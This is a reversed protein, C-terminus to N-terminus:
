QGIGLLCPSEDRGRWDHRDDGKDGETQRDACIEVRRRGAQEESHRDAPETAEQGAATRAPNGRRAPPDPRGVAPNAGSADRRLEELGAGTQEDSDGCERERQDVHAGNVTRDEHGREGDVEGNSMQEDPESSLETPIQPLPAREHPLVRLDSPQAEEGGDELAM